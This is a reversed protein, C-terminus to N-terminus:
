KFYLSYENSSAISLYLRNKYIRRRFQSLKSDDKWHTESSEVELIFVDDDM